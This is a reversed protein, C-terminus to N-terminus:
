ALGQSLRAQSRGGQPRAALSLLAGQSALVFSHGSAPVAYVGCPCAAATSESQSSELAEMVAGHYLRRLVARYQPRRPDGGGHGGRNFNALPYAGHYKRRLAPLVSAAQSRPLIRGGCDGPPGPDARPGVLDPGSAPVCPLQWQRGTVARPVAAAPAPVTSSGAAAGVVAYCSQAESARGPRSLLCAANPGPGADRRTGRVRITQDITTHSKRTTNVPM